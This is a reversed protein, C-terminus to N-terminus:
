DMSFPFVGSVTIPVTFSGFIGSSGVDVAPSGSFSCPLQTIVGAADVPVEILVDGTYRVSYPIAIAGTGAYNQMSEGYTGAFFLVGNADEFLTGGFQGNLTFSVPVSWPIDMFSGSASLSIPGSTYTGSAHGTVATGGEEPVLSAVWQGAVAVTTSITESIGFEPLYVQGTVTMTTSLPGSLRFGAPLQSGNYLATEPLELDIKIEYPRTQGDVVVSDAITGRWRLRGAERLSLQIPRQAANAPDTYYGSLDGTAANYAVVYDIHVGLAGTCSATGTVTAVIGGQDDISVAVDGFVAGQPAVQEGAANTVWGEIDGVMSGVMESAAAPSALGLGAALLAGWCLSRLLLRRLSKAEIKKASPPPFSIDALRKKM